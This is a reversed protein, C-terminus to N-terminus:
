RGGGGWYSWYDADTQQYNYSVPLSAAAQSRLREPLFIVARRYLSFTCPPNKKAGKPSPTRAHRQPALLVVAGSSSSSSKWGIPNRWRGALFHEAPSAPVTKDVKKKM